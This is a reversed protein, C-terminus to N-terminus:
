PLLAGSEVLVAARCATLSKPACVSESSCVDKFGFGLQTNHGTIIM